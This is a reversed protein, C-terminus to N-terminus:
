YAPCKLRMVERRTSSDLTNQSFVVDASSLVSEHKAEPYASLLDRDWLIYKIGDRCISSADGSSLFERARARRAQELQARGQSWLWGPYGSYIPRGTLMPVFQAPNNATLFRDNPLSNERIWAAAEVEDREYYSFYNNGVNWLRIGVDILGSLTSLLVFAGFAFAAARRRAGALSEFLGLAAIAAFLWWYFLIKGNDFEWPQFVVINPALFLLLGPLISFKAMETGRSEGKRLFIFLPLAIIWAWVLAGFNATLFWSFSTYSVGGDCAYWSGSHGCFMWGIWLKLFSPSAAGEAAKPMLFFIQPLAIAAGLVGGKVWALRNGADLLFRCLFVISLAIFTHAHFLPLLGWVVGWRWINPSGTYVFCALLLTLAIAFGPIFARQHSLFSISPVYWAIRSLSRQFDSNFRDSPEFVTLTYSYPSSLAVQAARPIGGDKWGGAVNSAYLLFGLGGGFYVIAVLALAYRRAGPFVRRGLLYLLFIASVGFAAVPAHWAIIDSFGLRGYLASLLNVLFPYTMAEGSLVHHELIFPDAFKLRGIMNLHYASDGWAAFVASPIGDANTLLVGILVGLYLAILVAFVLAALYPIRSFDVPPMRFRLPMGRRWLFFGAALSLIVWLLIVAADWSRFILLAGLTLFASAAFGLPLSAFLSEVRSLRAGSDLCRLVAFGITSQLALFLIGTIPM